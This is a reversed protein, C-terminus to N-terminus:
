RYPGASEDDAELLRFRDGDIEIAELDKVHWECLGCATCVHVEFHGVGRERWVSPQALALKSRGGESRDLVERAYLIKRCGCAPCRTDAQMTTGRRARASELAASLEVVQQQLSEIAKELDGLRAADDGESGM